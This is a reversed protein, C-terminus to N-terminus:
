IAKILMAILGTITIVASASKGFSLLTGKMSKLLKKPEELDQIRKENDKHLKELVDTRRMHEELSRTNRDLTKDISTVKSSLEKADEKIEKLTELIVEQLKDEKM